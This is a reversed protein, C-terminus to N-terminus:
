KGQATLGVRGSERYVVLPFDDKNLVRLMVQPRAGPMIRASLVAGPQIDRQRSQRCERHIQTLGM